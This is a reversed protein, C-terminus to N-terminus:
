TIKREDFDVVGITRIKKTLIKKVAEVSRVGMNQVTVPDIVVQATEAGKTIVKKVLKMGCLPCNGPDTERIQPHMGCTYYYDVGAVLEEGETKTDIHGQATHNHGSYISISSEREGQHVIKNWIGYKHVSWQILLAFFLILIWGISIKKRNM